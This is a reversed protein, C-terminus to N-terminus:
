WSDLSSAKRFDPFDRFEVNQDPNTNTKPSRIILDFKGPLKWPLYNMKLHRKERRFQILVQASILLKQPTKPYHICRRFIDGRMGGPQSQHHYVAIPLRKKPQNKHECTMKGARWRDLDKDRRDVCGAEIFHNIAADMQKQQVLYDGWCEELRVVEAPFAARALEM